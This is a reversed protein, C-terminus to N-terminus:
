SYRIENRFVQLSQYRFVTLRLCMEAYVELAFFELANDEMAWPLELQM